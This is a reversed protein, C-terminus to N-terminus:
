NLILTYRYIPGSLDLEITYNGAEEVPINDAGAQLTGDANETGYNLDWADNARFKIEGATLDTTIRWVKDTMDYTLDQDADWGDATADGIVGWTTNLISYSMDNLDVNMKYYGTDATINAGNQQLTGDAGDDGWNVDWNREETFKFESGDNAIYVYGEYRDDSNRSYLAPADEPSWDNTYGSASQYGGPVYIEPFEIVVEYPTFALVFTESIRDEVSENVHARIRMTIESEIGFPIGATLLRTNVEGVTMTVSTQNTEVFTVPDEFGSEDVDMEIFYTVAAPFGFDPADWSLTFLDEDAEEENLVYSEGGSHSTLVPSGPDSKIKPGVSDECSTFLLLGFIAIFSIMLNKM